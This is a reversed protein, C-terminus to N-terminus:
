LFKGRITFKTSQLPLRSWRSAARREGAPFRGGPVLDVTDNLTSM